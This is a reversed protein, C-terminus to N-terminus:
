SNMIKEYMKLTNELNGFQNLFESEIKNKKHRRRITKMLILISRITDTMEKEEGTFKEM